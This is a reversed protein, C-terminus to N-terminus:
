IGGYDAFGSRRTFANRVGGVVSKGFDRTARLDQTAGRQLNSLNKSIQSPRMAKAAGVAGSVAGGFGGMTSLGVGGGLAAAIPMIQRLILIFCLSIIVLSGVNGMDTSGDAPLSNIFGQYISM